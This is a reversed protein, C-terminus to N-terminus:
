SGLDPLMDDLVQKIENMALDVETRIRNAMSSAPMKMLDEKYQREISSMRAVLRAAHERVHRAISRAHIVQTENM